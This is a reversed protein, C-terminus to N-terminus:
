FPEDKTWVRTSSAAAPLYRGRLRWWAVLLTLALLAAVGAEAWAQRYAAWRVILYVTPVPLLLIIWRRVRRESRLAVLGLLFLLAALLIATPWDVHATYAV